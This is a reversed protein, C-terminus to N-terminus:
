ALYGKIHDAALLGGTVCFGQQSGPAAGVDYTFGYMGGADSGLAYLGPIAHGDEKVVRMDEDVKLGGVTTYYTPRVAFGYYPPKEMAFLHGPDKRFDEDEGQKCFENYRDVTEKLTAPDLGLKEALEEVTDAKYAEVGANEVAAEIDDMLDPLKTGELLMACPTLMLGEDRQLELFSTDSIVYTQPWPEMVAGYCTFDPAARWEDCYRVANQNVWLGPAGATTAYVHDELDLIGDVSGEAQMVACPHHLAAGASLGMNWGDGERGPMGMPIWREPDLYTYKNMMEPSNAIGGTALVVARSRLLTRTGDPAVAVVGAVAGDDDVVLEKGPMECRVDVGDAIAKNTLTETAQAGYGKYIHWTMNDSSLKLIGDFEVGQELMWNLGDKSTDVFRKVVRENNTFHCYEQIQEIFDNPTANFGIEKQMDSGVAFMGETCGSTGGTKSNKELLVTKLGNENARLAAVLGATGAGVVIVDFSEDADYEVGNINQAQLAEGTSALNEAVDDAKSSGGKIPACGALGATGAVAAGAVLASKLFSRRTFEM